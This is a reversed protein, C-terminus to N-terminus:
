SYAPRPDIVALRDFNALILGLKRFLLTVDSLERELRVDPHLHAM